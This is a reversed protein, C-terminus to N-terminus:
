ILLHPTVQVGLEIAIVRRAAEAPLARQRRLSRQAGRRAREHRAPALQRGDVAARGGHGAAGGEWAHVALYPAAGPLKRHVMSLLYNGLSM